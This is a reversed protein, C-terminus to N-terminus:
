YESSHMITLVRNVPGKNPNSWYEFSKDYYDIKFFYIEGSVEVSGFDHEGYPDNDPSFDKFKSIARVISEKHASGAVLQTLLIRNSPTLSTRICGLHKRFIDNEEAVINISM